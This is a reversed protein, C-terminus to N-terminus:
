DGGFSAILRLGAIWVGRDGTENARHMYQLDPQIALFPALKDQYTIEIGDEHRSPSEGEDRLNDIIGRALTGRQIGASFAGDPRGPVLGEVLVGIQWGGRFPTTKGESIGARAFLRSGKGAEGTLQHEILMYAGQAIRQVAAGDPTIARIDDQRRSYRWVGLALKGSDAMGGEAIYLVGDRFGFDIGSPDGLVGAKANIVAARAYGKAGVSVNLRVMLATSPFISPGNPGTAALESGIGFAPALLLGAAENSYFDANLDGLGALLSVRGGAFSQELWAQYLKARADTVEINDIGQLTGAGDNPRGGFNALFHLGGRLGSIGTAKALDADAALEVNHLAYGRTRDDGAVMLADVVYRGSVAVAPGPEVQAFAPAATLTVVLAAAYNWKPM